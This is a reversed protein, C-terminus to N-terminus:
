QPPLLKVLLMVLRSLRLVPLLRARELYVVCRLNLILLVQALKNPL